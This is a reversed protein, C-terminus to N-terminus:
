ASHSNANSLSMIGGNGTQRDSHNSSRKAARVVAADGGRVLLVANEGRGAFAAAFEIDPM